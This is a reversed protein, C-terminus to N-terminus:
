QHPMIKIYFTKRCGKMCFATVNANITNPRKLKNKVQYNKKLAIEDANPDEWRM